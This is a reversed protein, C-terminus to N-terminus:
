LLGMEAAYTMWAILIVMKAEAKWERAPTHFRKSVRALKGGAHDAIQASKNRRVILAEASFSMKRGLTDGSRPLRVVEQSQTM